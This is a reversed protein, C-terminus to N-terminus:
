RGDRGETAAFIPLCKWEIVDETHEETVTRPVRRQGVVVAECVQARRINFEVPFGGPADCTLYFWDGAEGKDARGLKRANEIFAERTDFFVNVTIDYGAEVDPHAEWWDATARLKDAFEKGTM